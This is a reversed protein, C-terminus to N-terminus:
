ITGSGTQVPSEVPLSSETQVSSEVPV